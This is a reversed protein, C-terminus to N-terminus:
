REGAIDALAAKLAQLCLKSTHADPKFGSAMQEYPHIYNRFDRLGHSFKQVDLKLLGTKYAVDILESLRWEILPKVKGYKKPSSDSRNFLEPNKLAAGLLVAELVSGCMLIASLHAGLSLCHQAEEIREQIIVSATPEVPLKDIQPIEFTLDLFGEATTSHAAPVKGSLRDVIDRCRGLSVVDLERIGSDCLAEYVGVMEGLIPAVVRDTETEWFSRLKRAKSTGYTQYRSSHIDIKHRNFLQAFTADTFDLVYGTKMGLIQEFYRRDQATLNSM